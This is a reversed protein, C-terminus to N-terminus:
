VLERWDHERQNFRLFVVDDGLEKVIRNQRITDKAVHKPQLHKPEDWEMVLKCEPLEAYYDLSYGCIAKEGLPHGAHQGNWGMRQNIRTFVHTALPNSNRKPGFREIQALRAMRIKDVAEESLKKGNNGLSIKARHEPTLKRGRGAISLKRKTEDSHPGRKIRSSSISLKKRTEESVVRVRNAASIKKKAEETHKLGTHLLCLKRKTEDSHKKGLWYTNGSHIMSIKQKAEESLKKGLRSAAIRAKAEETHRYGKKNM